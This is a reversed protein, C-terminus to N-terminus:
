VRSQRSKIRKSEEDKVEGLSITIPGFTTTGFYDVLYLSGFLWKYVLHNTTAESVKESVYFRPAFFLLITIYWPFTFEFLRHIDDVMTDTGM